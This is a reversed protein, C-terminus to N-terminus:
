RSYNQPKWIYLHSNTMQETFHMRLSWLFYYLHRRCSHPLNNSLTFRKRLISSGLQARTFNYTVGWGDVCMCVFVGTTQDWCALLKLGTGMAPEWSVNQGDQLSPIQVLNKQNLCHCPSPLNHSSVPMCQCPYPYKFFFLSYLRYWTPSFPM